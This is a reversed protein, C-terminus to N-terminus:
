NYKKQIWLVRVHCFNEAVKRDSQGHFFIDGNVEMVLGGFFENSLGQLEMDVLHDLNNPQILNHIGDIMWTLTKTRGEKREHGM